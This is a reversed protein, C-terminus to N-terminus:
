FYGFYSKSYQSYEINIEDAEDFHNYDEASVEISIRTPSNIYLHYTNNQPMYQKRIVEAQEVIKNRYKLDKVIGKMTRLYTIYGVMFILVVIFAMAIFYDATPNGEEQHRQLEMKYDQSYHSAIAIAVGGALPIFIGIITILRMVKFFAAFERDKKRQLFDLESDNM